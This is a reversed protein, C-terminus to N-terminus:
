HRPHYFILSIYFGITRFFGHKMLSLHFAANIRIFVNAHTLSQIYLSINSDSLPYRDNCAQMQHIARSFWKNRAERNILMRSVYLILKSFSKVGVANSGHQRYSLLPENLCFLIGLRSTIMALWWDHMVVSPPFPLAHLICSKNMLCTCGTVINQLSISLLSDYKPRINQYEFYSKAILNNSEDVLRLDSHILIPCSSSHKSEIKHMAALLRKSKDLDWIDDQDALMVYDSTAAALLKEFNKVCGVNKIDSDLLTLPIQSKLRWNKILSITGDTSCDDSIIIRKPPIIQCAISDLQEELYKEGNYTALVVEYDVVLAFYGVEHLIEM